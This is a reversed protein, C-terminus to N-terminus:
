AANNLFNEYKTIQQEIDHMNAYLNDVIQQINSKVAPLIMDSKVKEFGGLREIALFEWDSTFLKGSVLRDLNTSIDIDAIKSKIQEITNAMCKEFVPFPNAQMRAMAPTIKISNECSTQNIGVTKLMSLTREKLIKEGDMIKYYLGLEKTNDQELYEDPVCFWEDICNDDAIEDPVIHTIYYMTDQVCEKLLANFDTEMQELKGSTELDYLFKISTQCCRLIDHTLSPEWKKSYTKQTFLCNNRKDFVMIQYNDLGTRSQKEKPKCLKVHYLLHNDADTINFYRREMSYNIVGMVVDWNNVDQINFSLSNLNTM